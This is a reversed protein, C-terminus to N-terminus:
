QTLVDSGTRTCYTIAKGEFTCSEYLPSIWCWMFSCHTHTVSVDQSVSPFSIQCSVCSHSINIVFGASIHGFAQWTWNSEVEPKKKKKVDKLRHLWAALNNDRESVKHCCQPQNSKHIIVCLNLLIATCTYIHDLASTRM